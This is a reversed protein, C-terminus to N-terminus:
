RKPKDRISLFAKPSHHFMKEADESFLVDSFDGCRPAQLSQTELRIQVGRWLEGAAIAM